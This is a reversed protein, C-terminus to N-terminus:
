LQESRGQLRPSLTRCPAVTKRLENEWLYERGGCGLRLLDVFPEIGFLIGFLSILDAVVTNSTNSSSTIRILAPSGQGLLGNDM